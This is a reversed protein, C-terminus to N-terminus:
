ADGFSDHRIWFGNTAVQFLGSGLRYGLALVDVADNFRGFRTRETRHAYASALVVNIRDM